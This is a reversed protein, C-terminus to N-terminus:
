YASSHSSSLGVIKGSTNRKEIFMEMMEFCSARYILKEDSARFIAGGKGNKRWALEHQVLRTLESPDLFYMTGYPCDPDTVIKISGLSSQFRVAALGTTKTDPTIRMQGEYLEEVDLCNWVNTLVTMGHLNGAGEQKLMALMERFHRAQLDGPLGTGADVPIRLVPSSYHPYDSVNLTQFDGPSDDIMKDLGQFVRGKACNDGTGWYVEDGTAITEGSELSLGSIKVTAKGNADLARDVKDCVFSGKLAGSEGPGFVSFDKSAWLGRGDDVSISGDSGDADEGVTCMKGSGDRTFNFNELKRIGEMLGRLESNVVSIASQKDTIARLAGDTVQVTGSLFTRYAKIRGYTQKSAEPLPAGDYTGPNISGSPQLHIVKEVHEEGKWQMKGKPIKRAISTMNLTKTVKPLYKIFSAGFDGISVGAM